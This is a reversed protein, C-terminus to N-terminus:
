GDWWAISQLTVTLIVENRESLLVIKLLITPFSFVCLIITIKVLKIILKESKNYKKVSNSLCSEM